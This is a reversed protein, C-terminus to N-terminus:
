EKRTLIGLICLAVLGQQPMAEMEQGHRVEMGQVLGDWGERRLRVEVGLLPM